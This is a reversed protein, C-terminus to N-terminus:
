INLSYKFNPPFVLVALQQQAIAAKSASRGFLKSVFSHHQHTMALLDIDNEACYHQLTPQLREGFVQQCNLKRHALFKRFAMEPGIETIVEDPRLVHIIELQFNFAKALDLLFDVAPLDTAGFDTAFLVKKPINWEVTVPIVWVPKTAKNIVESTDSGTLLHSIAGGSRSGMIVMDIDEGSTLQLVNDALNGDGSKCEIRIHRGATETRLTELDGAEKKLQEQSSEYLMDTSEIVLPEESNSLAMPIYPLTHYLIIDANLKASLHLAITEAHASNASFDTLVLLKKMQNEKKIFAM